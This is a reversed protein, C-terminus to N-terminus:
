PQGRLKRELRDAVKNATEQEAPTRGHPNRMIAIKDRLPQEAYLRARVAAITGAVQGAVEELKWLVMEFQILDAADLASTDRVEAMVPSLGHRYLESTTTTDLRHQLELLRLYRYEPGPPYTIKRRTM